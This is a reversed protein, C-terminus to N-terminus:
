SDHPPKAISKGRGLLMTEVFGGWGESRSERVPATVVPLRVPGEGRIEYSYEIGRPLFVFGGKQLDFTEGGCRFNIEGELVYLMEDETEHVYSTPL